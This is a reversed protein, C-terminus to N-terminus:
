LFDMKVKAKTMSEQLLFSTYVKFIALQSHMFMTSSIIKRRIFLIQINPENTHLIWAHFEFTKNVQVM